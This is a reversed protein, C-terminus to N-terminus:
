KERPRVVFAPKGKDNARYHPAYLSEIVPVPSQFTGEQTVFYEETLTTKEEPYSDFWFETRDALVSRYGQPSFSVWGTISIPRAFWGYHGSLQDTPRFAAPRPATLRVFSRNEENWIAYRAVVKDGVHLIDGDHLEKGECTFSQELTFGNGSAKVQAFPLTTTANLALVKTRLTTETGQLVSGIAQIYAPDDEWQQTEKQVMIWLRIGEAVDNHGCDTLLDCILAHAYLESELLGRWPMVANPYYIGGSRHPEAYQLLSEVDKDLSKALRGRAFLSIGMARALAPGKENELLARLTKMRRAKAFVQGNLGREAGPVLYSRTSKRFERMVKSSTGKPAFGVEPFLARVHLYQALSLGGCWFPRGSEGLQEDDLYKVAAPAAAALGEPCDDGMASIRELLVATLLPSSQMGEFWGFGGDGNKCALIKKLMEARQEPTAGSGTSGPLRDILCNAFLAESQDILNDSAPIVKEPIAERIMGLISIERLSAEAGQVNVFRGRLEALVADRDTGDLLLASHAETITQVAPSVPMVVFVGDSGYDTNDATFNVLLGLDRVAPAAIECTFDASGNAPVTIHRSQQGIVPATRYDKGDTFKVSIRGAVPTGKSNAVTVRAVYRDGTYLFQPQVVAVKVPLTVVMERRLTANSFSKDHAFLQVYYTSLKDATSFRFTVTGDQDSRLFPEWAITNAFNERIATNEGGGEPMEPSESDASMSEEAAAMAMPASDEMLVMQSNGASKSLVRERNVGRVAVNDYASSRDTGLTSSYDVSPLSRRQPRVSEWVNPEVTETSKDFITAALETGAATRITFSYDHRPATTDLFRTFQLPLETMAKAKYSTVSYEYSDENRFWFVQLTLTEPYASKRDFRIVQLSGDRGRQGSLKVLRKELLRNGDGYLEALIWAPGATAGVQLAISNGDDPMEKFFCAADMDLATDTDTVKVIELRGDEDYVEGSDSEATARTEIIYLGSPQRSLDLSLTEGNAATGSLLTEGERLVRYSIRLDPHTLAKGSGLQFRVQALGEGIIDGNNYRDTVQFRGRVPNMIRVDLPLNRSFSVSKEFSLTEGTADTVRVTIVAHTYSDKGPGQFRIRFDGGPSLELDGEQLVTDYESVTYRATATGLSHGSYSRINGEVTAYDGPLYFRSDPKWSLDFTPLVFEDARVRTSAITRNGERVSITYLGGREGKRLVFSGAASGFENTTLAEEAVVKNGPDTLVATLAIGAPRVSYEYTGQYLLVKYHVTEDPNFASRDTIILAHQRAPNDTGVAEARDYYLRHLRSMRVRGDIRTVAQIRWGWHEEELHRTFSEPLYTFGDIVFASVREVQKDKSDFLLLDCSSVPEGTLYDAVYVGYGDLDRKHALSLTYKEYVSETEVKGATCKLTYAKDDLAPLDLSLTDQVYFSNKRNEVTTAFVEKKGDLIRVKLEPLNRVRIVARSRNVYVSAEQATLRALIHDPEKCCAALAKEDGQFANRDRIFDQCDLALRRYEEPDADKYELRNLRRELLYERSFMSVAKGAYTKTFDELEAEAATTGKRRIVMYGILADFPYRGEYYRSIVDTIEPTRNRGYMSWLAYEYDNAINPLLVESFPFVATNGDNEYFEPNHAQLMREKQETVYSLLSAPSANRIRNYYVAVPEGFQEIDKDAQERLGDRLKWNTSSRSDVYKWCADYYDWALHQASAEHKIKELIDAQDKPKDADVAKEYAAWLKTLTHGQNDKACAPLIM